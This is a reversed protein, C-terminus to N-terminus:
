VGGEPWSDESTLGGDEYTWVIKHYVFSVHERENHLVNEPYKNNLM